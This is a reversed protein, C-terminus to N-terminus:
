AMAALIAIPEPGTRLRSFVWLSFDDTIGGRHCGSLISVENGILRMGGEDMWISLIIGSFLDCVVM